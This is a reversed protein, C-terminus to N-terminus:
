HLRLPAGTTIQIGVLRGDLFFYDVGAPGAVFYGQEALGRDATEFAMPEPARGLDDRYVSM